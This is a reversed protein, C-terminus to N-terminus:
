RGEPLLSKDFALAISFSTSVGKRKGTGSVVRYIARSIAWLFLRNFCVSFLFLETNKNNIRM